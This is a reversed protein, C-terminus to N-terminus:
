AVQIVIVSFLEAVPSKKKFLSSLTPFPFLASRITSPKIQAIHSLHSTRPPYAFRPLPYLLICSFFSAFYQIYTSSTQFLIINQVRSTTMFRSGEITDFLLNLVHGNKTQKRNKLGLVHAYSVLPFFGLFCSFGAFM